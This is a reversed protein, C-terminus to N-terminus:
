EIQTLLDTIAVRAAIYTYKKRGRPEEVSRVELADENLSLRVGVPPRTTREVIENAVCLLLLFVLARLITHFLSSHVAVYVNSHVITYHFFVLDVVRYNTNM